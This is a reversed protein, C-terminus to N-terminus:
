QYGGLFHERKDTVFSYVQNYPIFSVAIHFLVLTLITFMFSIYFMCLSLSNCVRRHGPDFNQHAKVRLDLNVLDFLNQYEDQTWHGSCKM